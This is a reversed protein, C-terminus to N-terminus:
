PTPATVTIAALLDGRPDARVARVKAGAPLTQPALRASSESVESVRHLVSGDTLEIDLPLLLRYGRAGAPQEASLEMADGQQRWRVDVTAWGPRRLWQDFFWRLPRQSSEEAAHMFDDTLANGNRYRAQYARMARVFASDGIERRLMHLVHGGKQYSNTNLLQMLVTQATDVVPRERSVRSGMVAKRMGALEHRLATDGGVHEAYMAALYTAFGESLWAHAWARETVADGFWQHATEHAILGPPFPQGNGFIEWAYFIAGANEMGGFRTRSQVHALRDYPYPGVLSSFFRVIEGAQVFTGPMAARVAPAFIVSQPVCGGGLAAGCATAGLSLEELKGVGIVMLYTPIPQAQAYRWTAMAPQGATDVRESVGNAIVRYETPVRVTWAVTAKDSPHDVVPLWLRARNPWNDGFATWGNADSRIVLGDKPTATWEVTVRVTDGVPDAMPVVVASDLRQIEVPVGRVRVSTIVLGVADLRLQRVGRSRLLTIVERGEISSSPPALTLAIDYHLVDVGPQPREVSAATPAFPAAGQAGLPASPIALTGLAALAALRISAARVRRTGHLMTSLM